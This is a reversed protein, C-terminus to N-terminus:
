RKGGKDESMAKSFSILVGRIACLIVGILLPSIVAFWGWEILGLMKLVIFAVALLVLFSRIM